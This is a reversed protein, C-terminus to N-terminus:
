PAWRADAVAQGLSLRRGALRAVQFRTEGLEARLSTVWTDFDRLEVDTRPGGSSERPGDAAGIFRAARELEGSARAVTALVDLSTAVGVKDGLSSFV